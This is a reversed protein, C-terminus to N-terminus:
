ELKIKFTTFIQFVFYVVLSFLNCKRTFSFDMRKVHIVCFDIEKRFIIQHKAFIDTVQYKRLYSKLHLHSFLATYSAHTRM